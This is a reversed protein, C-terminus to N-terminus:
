RAQDASRWWTFTAALGAIFALLVVLYSHVRVQGAGPGMMGSVLGPVSWPFWDGWGLVGVIQAFALTSLAWGIPPLYGRGASAVFAVLPMLMFNLLAILSLSGFSTWALDPSWGPIDVAAGIGLATVFILLTLGLNWLATLVFKAGVIYGRPTPTALLEKVTHDSFERGFVWATIFAFLMAGGIATGQLLIDLYTPWDAVGGALQAKVSILGMERAREPNKLIIMFLGGVLPLILFGITTGPSVKSRRAKLAEAWFASHFMNM